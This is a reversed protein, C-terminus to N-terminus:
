ISGGPVMGPNHELDNIVFEWLEDDKRLKGSILASSAETIVDMIASRLYASNNDTPLATAKIGLRSRQDLLLYRLSLSMYWGYAELNQCDQFLLKRYEQYTQELEQHLQKEIEADGHDYGEYKIRAEIWAEIANQLRIYLKFQFAPPDAPRESVYDKRVVTSVREFVEPCEIQDPDHEFPSEEQQESLGRSYQTRYFNKTRDMKTCSFIMVYNASWRSDETRTRKVIGLVNGNEDEVHTEEVLEELAGKSFLM